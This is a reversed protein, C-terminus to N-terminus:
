DASISSQHPSSTELKSNQTERKSVPHSSGADRLFRPQPGEARKLSGAPAFCRCRSGEVKQAKGVVPAFAAFTMPAHHALSRALTEVPCEFSDVFPAPIVTVFLKSVLHFLQTQFQLAM